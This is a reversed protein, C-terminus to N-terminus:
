TVQWQVFRHVNAASARVNLILDRMRAYVKYSLIKTLIDARNLETAIKTVAALRQESAYQIFTNRRRMYLSGKDSKGGAVKQVSGSNDCHVPSAQLQPSGLEAM